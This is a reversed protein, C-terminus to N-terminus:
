QSGQSAPAEEYFVAFYGFSDAAHSAWSHEPGLALMEIPIGHRGKADISGNSFSPHTTQGNASPPLPVHPEKEGAGLGSKITARVALAGDDKTPGCFTAADFLRGEVTARDIWGSAVMHGMTLATHEEAFVLLTTIVM